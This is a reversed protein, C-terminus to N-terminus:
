LGMDSGGGQAANSERQILDNDDHKRSQRQRNINGFRYSFQVLVSRLEVDIHNASTFDSTEIDSNVKVKSYFPNLVQTTLTMKDNNFSKSLILAHINMATSKGQLDITKTGGSYYATLSFNKPLQQMVYVMATQSWGSNHYGMKTSKLDAYSTGSQLTISTMPSLMLRLYLDLSTRKNKGINGYTTYMVNDKTYSYQQIGNDTFSYKLSANVMVKQGFSGFSMQLNNAKEVELDPNGMTVNDRIMDDVYPNLYTIGPRSIRMNYALGINKTAGIRWGISASPIVNDYDAGFDKGDNYTISQSTYEYRVGAKLSANGVALGYSAYGAVINNDHNYDIEPADSKSKRSTYKGGLEITHMDNAKLTYDASAIQELMENENKRSYSDIMYDEYKTDTETETPSNSIRYGVILTNKEGFIHTYDISSNWRTTTMETKDRQGYKMEFDKTKSESILHNKSHTNMTMFGGEIQVANKENIDINAGLTGQGMTNHNKQWGETSSTNGEKDTRKLNIDIGNNIFYGGAANIDLSVKGKQVMGYVSGMNNRTGAVAALNMMYGDTSAQGEQGAQSALTISLVGGVGEADYKAGPNTVVTISKIASAPMAKFITSANASLMQNPKGNVYVQFSSSGNVTINDQGDVTVLPVKKLMDLVTNIKSDPDDEVSYELEDASVKVLPKQAVVDIGEIAQTDESIMLKGLNITEGNCKINRTITKKGISAIRVVYDGDKKAVVEFKGDLDTVTAALPTQEAEALSLSVTVYPEGKQSMEDLVEGNVKTQANAWIALATAATTMIVRKM